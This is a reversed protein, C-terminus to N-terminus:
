DNRARLREDIRRHLAGFDVERSGRRSSWVDLATAILWLVLRAYLKKLM